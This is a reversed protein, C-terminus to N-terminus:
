FKFFFFIIVLYFNLILLWAYNHVHTQLSGLMPFVVNVEPELVLGQGNRSGESTLLTQKRLSLPKGTRRHWLWNESQFM